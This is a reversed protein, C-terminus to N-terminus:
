ARPEDSDALHILLRIVGAFFLAAATYVVIGTWSAVFIAMLDCGFSFWLFGAMVWIMARQFTTM